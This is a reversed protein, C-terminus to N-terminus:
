EFFIPVYISVFISKLNGNLIVKQFTTKSKIQSAPKTARITRKVWPKPAEVLKLSLYGQPSQIPKSTTDPTPNDAPANVM